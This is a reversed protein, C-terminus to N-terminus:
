FAIKLCKKIAISMREYNVEGILTTIRREDGRREIAYGHERRISKDSVIAVDVARAHIGILKAACDKVERLAVTEIEEISGGISLIELINKIFNEAVESVIKEV